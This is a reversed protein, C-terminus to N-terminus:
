NPVPRWALQPTRLLAELVLQPVVTLAEDLADALHVAIPSEDLDLTAVWAAPEYRAFISFAYLLAWWTMLPSLTASPSGFAPRLWREGQFRYVPAVDDMTRILQGDDDYASWSLLLGRGRPTEITLPLPTGPPSDLTVGGATPYKSLVEVFADKGAWGLPVAAKIPGPRPLVARRDAFLEYPWFFLALPWEPDPLPTDTLDPLSSWLAGVEVTQNLPPSDTAQRVIGFAGKGRPTVVRHLLEGSQALTLGHGHFNWDDGAWAAAIARGAQSLAYFLPL